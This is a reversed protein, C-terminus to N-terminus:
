EQLAIQETIISMAQEAVEQPTKDNVVLATIASAMPSWVFGMEPISPMADSYQVQAMIAKSAEDAKMSAKELAVTSPPIMQSMEFRKALMADTALYDAFLQAAMPYETFASVVALRVTSFTRPHLGDYTPMPVVGVNIGSEMYQKTAWPGDVIAAVKGEAFLGRRVQPNRMDFPNFQIESQVSKLAALGKHAQGSSIGIDNADTGNSGFEYAGYLSFFMRSDYYNQVDWLLAYKNAKKDNFTQGFAILEEITQPASDLLDKNYFLANTAISVPFGYSVNEATAAAVASSLFENKIREASVLNEMVGGAVVLRGLTDHEIEAVDAVRATGGDQIMRSASDIPALGRYRFEVNYGFEANFQETAYQMYDLTTADTWILLEAGSEPAIEQATTPLAGLALTSALVAQIWKNNM